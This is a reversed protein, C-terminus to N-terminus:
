RTRRGVPGAERGGAEAERRTQRTPPSAHPTYPYQTLTSEGLIASLAGVVDISGKSRTYAVALGTAVQYALRRLGTLLGSIIIFFLRVFVPFDIAACEASQDDRGHERLPPQAAKSGGVTM